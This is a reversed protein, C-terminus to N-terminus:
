TLIVIKGGATNEEMARSAEVIDDITFVKGIHLPMKGDVILKLYHNLPTAMFEEPGGSYTTLNVMSPITEMPSFNDFSWKDGVMGMM